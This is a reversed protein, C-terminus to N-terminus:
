SSGVGLCVKDDLVILGKLFVSCLILYGKNVRSRKSYGRGPARQMKNKRYNNPEHGGGCSVVTNIKTQNKPPKVFGDITQSSIKKKRRKQFSSKLANRTILSVNMLLDPSAKM